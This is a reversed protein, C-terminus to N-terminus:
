KSGVLSECGDFVVKRALDLNQIKKRELFFFFWVSLIRLPDKDFSSRNEILREVIRGEM